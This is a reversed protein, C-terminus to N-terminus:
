VESNEFIMSRNQNTLYLPKPAYTTYWHGGVGEKDNNLADTIPQIGRGVGQESVLIPISRGKLNFDTFSEGFGHFTENINTCYNLFLRNYDNSYQLIDIKFALSNSSYSSLYFTMTYDALWYTKYLKGNIILQNDNIDFSISDITQSTSKWQIQEKLQYNGDVIPENLLISSGLYIFPQNVNTLFLIKNLNNKSIIQIKLTESDIFIQFNSILFSQISFSLFFYFSFLLYSFLYKM